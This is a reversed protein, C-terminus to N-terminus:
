KLGRDHKLDEIVGNYNELFFPYPFKIDGPPIIIWYKIESGSGWM